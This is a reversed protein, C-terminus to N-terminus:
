QAFIIIGNATNPITTSAVSYPPTNLVMNGGTTPWPNVTGNINTQWYRYIGAYIMDGKVYYDITILDYTIGSPVQFSRTQGPGINCLVTMALPGGGSFFSAKYLYISTIVIFAGTTDSPTKTNNTVTLPSLTAGILPCNVLDQTPPYYDPDSAINDKLTLPSIYSSTESNVLVLQSWASYGTNKGFGDLTCTRSVPYPVWSTSIASYSINVICNAPVKNGAYDCFSFSFVVSSVTDITRYVTFNTGDYEVDAVFPYNSSEFVISNPDVGLGASLSCLTSPNFTISDDSGYFVVAGVSASFTPFPRTFSGFFRIFNNRNLPM